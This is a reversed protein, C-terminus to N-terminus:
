PTKLACGPFERYPLFSQFESQIFAGPPPLSAHSPSWNYRLLQTRLGKEDGASAATNTEPGKEEMQGCPWAMTRISGM